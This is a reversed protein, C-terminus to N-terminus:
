KIIVKTKRLRNGKGKLPIEFKKLYSVLTANTVNLLKCIEKNPKTSYLKQLEEKTIEKRLKM